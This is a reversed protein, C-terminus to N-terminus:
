PNELKLDIKVLINIKDSGSYLNTVSNLENKKCSSVAWNTERM